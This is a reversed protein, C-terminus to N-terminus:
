NVPRVVDGRVWGRALSELSVYYWLFGDQGETQGLIHLRDGGAVGYLVEASPTPNARINVQGARQWAYELPISLDVIATQKYYDFAAVNNMDTLAAPRLFDQHVWGQQGNPTEVRFWLDRDVRTQSVVPLIQGVFGEAIPKALPSPKARIAIAIGPVQGRLLATYQFPARQTDPPALFQAQAPGSLSGLSGLSLLLTTLLQLSRTAQLSRTSFLGQIPFFM